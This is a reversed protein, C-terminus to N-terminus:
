SLNNEKMYMNIKSFIIDDQYVQIKVGYLGEDFRADKEWEMKYNIISHTTPIIPYLFKVTKIKRVMLETQRFFSFLEKAIQIICVGPTIPYNPFHVKYIVHEPNLGVTFYVSHNDAVTHSIISFFSDRLM